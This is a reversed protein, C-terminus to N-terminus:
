LLSPLFFKSGVIIFRLLTFLVAGKKGPDSLLNNGTCYLQVKYNKLALWYTNEIICQLQM